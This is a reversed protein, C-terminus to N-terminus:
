DWFLGPLCHFCGNGPTRKHLLTLYPQASRTSLGCIIGGCVCALLDVCMRVGGWGWVSARVCVDLSM